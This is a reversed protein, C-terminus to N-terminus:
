KWRLVTHTPSEAAASRMRSSSSAGTQLNSGTPARVGADIIKAIVDDPVPDPKLRRLARATHVVKFFDTEEM